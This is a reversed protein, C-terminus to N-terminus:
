PIIPFHAGFVYHALYVCYLGCLSSSLNQLPAQLIKTVGLDAFYLRDSVHPYINLKLGFQPNAFLFNNNKNCLLLSHTGKQTAKVSNVIIFNDNTLSLLFNDAAYVGAFKHKLHKCKSILTGLQLEDIM